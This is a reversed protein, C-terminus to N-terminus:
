SNICAPVWKGFTLLINSKWAGQIKLVSKALKWAAERAGQEQWETEQSRDEFKPANPGRQHLEGPCIYGVSPNQDRIKPTVRLPRQSNWVNSQHRCTQARGSFTSRRRWTRFYAVWNDPMLLNVFLHVNDWNRTVWRMLNRRDITVNTPLLDENMGIERKWCLWLVKAMMRKRGKLRSNILRVIHSHAGEEGGFLCGSKNKYFLCEPPPWKECFSNTCIGKLYDKCPWRSMRGSPSKGRPSRTRSTKREDKKKTGQNKVVANKEFNGSRAGFNNNRIKKSSVERWWLKENQSLWTRVEKSSDGPWVIGILDQTKWVRANKIQVM